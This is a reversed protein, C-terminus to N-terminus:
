KINCLVVGGLGGWVCVCEVSCLIFHMELLRGWWILETRAGLTCHICCPVIVDRVFPSIQHRSVCQSHVQHM